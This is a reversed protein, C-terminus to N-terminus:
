QEHTAGIESETPQEVQMLSSIPDGEADYTVVEWASQDGSQIEARLHALGAVDAPADNLLTIISAAPVHGEIWYDSAVATHCAAFERPVGLEAQSQVVDQTQVVGVALGDRRLNRIWPRYCSCRPSAYVIVDADEPATVPEYRIIIWGVMFLGILTLSLIPRVPKGNGRRLAALLSVSRTPAKRRNRKHIM